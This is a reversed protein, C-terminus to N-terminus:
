IGLNPVGLDPEENKGQRQNCILHAPAWNSRVWTLEPHSARSKLHQVSCSMPDPLRGRKTLTYDIPMHCLCCPTHNRSGMAKVYALAETARRGGWSDM